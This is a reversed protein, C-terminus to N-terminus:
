LYYNRNTYNYTSYDVNSNTAFSEGNYVVQCTHVDNLGSVQCKIECKNMENQFRNAWYNIFDKVYVATQAVKKPLNNLLAKKRSFNAIKDEKHAIIGLLGNLGQQHRLYAYYDYYKLGKAKFTEELDKIGNIAGICAKYPDYRDDGKVGGYGNSLQFVGQYSGNSALNNFTGGTEISAFALMVCPNVGMDNSAKIILEKVINVPLKTM